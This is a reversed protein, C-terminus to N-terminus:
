STTLSTAESPPNILLQLHNISVGVLLALRVDCLASISASSWALSTSREWLFMRWASIRFRMVPHSSQTSNFLQRLVVSIEERRCATERQHWGLSSARWSRTRCALASQSSAASCSRVASCAIVATM